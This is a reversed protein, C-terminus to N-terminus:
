WRSSPSKPTISGTSRRRAVRLTAPRRSRGSGSELGRRRVVPATSRRTTRHRPHKGSTSPEAGVEREAAAHDLRDVSGVLDAGVRELDEGVVRRGPTSAVSGGRLQRREARAEDLVVDPRDRDMGRVQDVEGAGLLREEPARHRDEGMVQARRRAEGRRNKLTWMPDCRPAPTAAPASRRASPRRAPGPRPRHRDPRPSPRARSSPRCRTRAPRRHRRARPSRRPRRPARCRRRRPDPEAEVRRVGPRGPDVQAPGRRDIREQGIEVGPDPEVPQHHDVEVVRLRLAARTEISVLMEARSPDARGPQRVQQAM